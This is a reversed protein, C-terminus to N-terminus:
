WPDVGSGGIRVWDFAQIPLPTPVPDDVQAFLWISTAAQPLTAKVFPFWTAGDASWMTYYDLGDRLIRFYFRQAIHPFSVNAGPVSVAPNAVGNLGGGGFIRWAGVESDLHVTAYDGAHWDDTRNSVAIGCDLYSDTIGPEGAAQLAIAICAIVSEGDGLTYDQRLRVHQNTGAQMLLWGPRSTLDYIGGTAGALDVTGATGQVVTWIADLTPSDFEDNAAHPTDPPRDIARIVM